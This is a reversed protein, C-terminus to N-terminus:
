EVLEIDEYHNILMDAQHLDAPTQTTLIGVVTMGAAKGSAVGPPSDEFVLCHKPDVGILEAAKLYAEPHPKSHTVNEAGVMVDFLDYVGLHTLLKTRSAASAATALAVKYGHSKLDHLLTEFGRVSRIYKSVADWYIKHREEYLKQLEAEATEQGFLERLIAKTTLGSYKASFTERDMEVGHRRAFEIWGYFHYPMNNIITGDLDFIAAKYKKLEIALKPRREGLPYIVVPERLDNNDIIIDAGAPKVRDWLYAQVKRHMEVVQHPHRLDADRMIKREIITELDTDIMITFDMHEICMSTDVIVLGAAPVTRATSSIEGSSREYPYFTSPKGARLDALVREFEDLRFWNELVEWHSKGAHEGTTYTQAKLPERDKRPILFEDHNLYVFPINRHRLETQIKDSFHSKGSGSDGIVGVLLPQKKQILIQDVCYRTIDATKM